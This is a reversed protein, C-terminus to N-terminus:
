SSLRRGASAGATRTTEGSDDTLEVTLNGSYGGDQGIDGVDTISAVVFGQVASDFYVAFINLRIEGERDATWEGLGNLSTSDLETVFEAVLTGDSHFQVLAQQYPFRDPDDIEYEILWVGDPSSTAEPAPTGEASAADADVVEITGVMAPHLGCQYEYTGAEEFTFAFAAGPDMIDSDAWDGLVTHPAAGINTWTISGGIAVTAVEPDFAFDVIAVDATMPANQNSAGGAADPTAMSEGTVSVLGLM